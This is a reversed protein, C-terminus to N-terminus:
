IVYRDVTRGANNMVFIRGSRVIGVEYSDPPWAKWIRILYAPGSEPQTALGSYSWDADEYGPQDRQFEVEIRDGEVMLEHVYAGAAPREKEVIKVIM